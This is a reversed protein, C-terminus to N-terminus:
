KKLLKFTAFWIPVVIDSMICPLLVALILYLFVIGMKSWWGEFGFSILYLLSALSSVLIHAFHFGLSYFIKQSHCHLSMVWGNIMGGILFPLVTGIHKIFCWHFHMDLGMLRGGIYPLFADSITCFIAPIFFGVLIGGWFSSSYRRFMLVTGSAAFLLHLFHFNHFLRYAFRTQEPSDNYCVFSVLVLALAVSFVAYPFHCFFEEKVANHNILAGGKHDHSCCSSQDKRHEGM